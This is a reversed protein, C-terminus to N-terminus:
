PQDSGSPDDRRPDAKRLREVFDEHEPTALGRQVAQFVTVMQGRVLADSDLWLGPFIESRHLGDQTTKMREHSGDRLIFWDVVRDLVRWFIYESVGPNQYVERKQELDLSASGVAVEAVLDPAGEVYRDPSFASRVGHAPDFRAHVDPQPQNRGDLGITGEISCILFPTGLRYFRFWGNLDSRARGHVDSVPSAVHVVGDILEAKRVLPSALYRREFEHSTLRDGDVLEPILDPQTSTAM